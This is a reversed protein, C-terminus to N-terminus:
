YYSYSQNGQVDTIDKIIMKNESLCCFINFFVKELFHIYNEPDGEAFRIVLLLLLKIIMGVALSSLPGGVFTESGTLIDVLIAVWDLYSALGAEIVWRVVVLYTVSQKINTLSLWISLFSSLVYVSALIVEQKVFDIISLGGMEHEYEFMETDDSIRNGFINWRNVRFFVVFFWTPIYFLYLFTQVIWVVSIHVLLWIQVSGICSEFTSKNFMKLLNEFSSIM